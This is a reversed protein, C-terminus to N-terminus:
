RGRQSGSQEENEEAEAIPLQTSGDARLARDFLPTGASQMGGRRMYVVRDGDTTRFLRGPRGPDRPDRDTATVQEHILVAGARYEMSAALEFTREWGNELAVTEKRSLYVQAPGLCQGERSRLEPTMIRDGVVPMLRAYRLCVPEEDQAGEEGGGAPSATDDGDEDEAPCREGDAVLVQQGGTERLRLRARDVPMRLTGLARVAVGEATRQTIVVPGFGDGDEFRHTIVWVPKVMPEDSRGVIVSEETLPQATPAAEDEDEHVACATDTPRWQIVNGVCDQQSQTGENFNRVVLSAWEEADLNRVMGGDPVPHSLYCVPPPDEQTEGGGGCAVFALLATTLLVSPVLAYSLAERPM